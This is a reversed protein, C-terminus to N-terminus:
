YTSRRIGNLVESLLTTTAKLSEQLARHQQHLDGEVLHQHTNFYHAIQNLNGGIKSLEKKLDFAASLIKSAQEPTMAESDETLAKRVCYRLLKSQDLKPDTKKRKELEDDFLKEVENLRFNIPNERKM